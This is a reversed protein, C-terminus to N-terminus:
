IPGGPMITGPGIVGPAPILPPAVAPAVAGPPMSGPPIVGTLPLMACGGPGLPVDPAMDGGVIIGPDPPVPPEPIGICGIIGNV